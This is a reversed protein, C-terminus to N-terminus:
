KEPFDALDRKTCREINPWLSEEAMKHSDKVGLLLTEYVARHWVEQGIAPLLTRRNQKERYKQLMEDNEELHKYLKFNLRSKAGEIKKDKIKVKQAKKIKKFWRIRMRKLREEKEGLGLASPM